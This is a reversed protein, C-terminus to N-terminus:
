SRSVIEIPAGEHLAHWVRLLLDLEIRAREEGLEPPLGVEIVAAVHEATCERRRLFEVLEEALRPDSLELRATMRM